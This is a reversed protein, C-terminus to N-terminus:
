FGLSQKPRFVYFRCPKEGIYGGMLALPGFKTIAFSVSINFGIVAHIGCKSPYMFTEYARSRLWPDWKPRRTVDAVLLRTHSSVPLRRGMADCKSTATESLVIASGLSDDLLWSVPLRGRAFPHRLERRM